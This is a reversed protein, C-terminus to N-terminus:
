ALIHIKQVGKLLSTACITGCDKKFGFQIESVTGEPMVGYKVLKTYISSIAIPRCNTPINPDLTM